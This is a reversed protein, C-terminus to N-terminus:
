FALPTRVKVGMPSQTLLYDIGHTYTTSIDNMMRTASGDATM